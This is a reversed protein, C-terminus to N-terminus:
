APRRRWRIVMGDALPERSVNVQYDPNADLLRQLAREAQSITGIDMDELTADSVFYSGSTARAVEGGMLTLDMGAMM